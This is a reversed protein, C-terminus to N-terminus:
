RISTRLNSINKTTYPVLKACGYFESMVSMMRWTELNCHHLTTLFKQEERPIGQHYRLYKTLSPKNIMDHNHEPIFATVEFKNDILKVRMSARCNTQKISERRRKKGIKGSSGKNKSLTRQGGEGGGDDTDSESSPNEPIPVAPVDDTKPKRNKNCCFQQKELVKTFASRRSTNYKVSFGLSKAYANYHLKAEELTDFRMGVYPEEPTSRVETEDDGEVVLHVNTADVTPLNETGSPLTAAVPDANCDTDMANSGGTAASATVHIKAGLVEPTRSANVQGLLNPSEGVGEISAYGGAPPIQTCFLPQAKNNGDGEDLFTDEPLMNLDLGSM